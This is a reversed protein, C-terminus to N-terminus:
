RAGAKRAMREAYEARSCALMLCAVRGCPTRACDTIGFGSEEIEALVECAIVDVRERDPHQVIIVLQPGTWDCTEVPYPWPTGYNRENSLNAALNWRAFSTATDLQDPFLTADDANGYSSGIKQTSSNPVFPLVVAAVGLRLVDRRRYPRDIPICTM